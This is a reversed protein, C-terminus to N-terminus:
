TKFILIRIKLKQEWTKRYKDWTKCPTITDSIVFMNQNLDHWLASDVVNKMDNDLYGYNYFLQLILYNGEKLHPLHGLSLISKM